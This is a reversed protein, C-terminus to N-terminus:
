RATRFKIRGRKLRRWIQKVEEAHGAFARRKRRKPLTGRSVRVIKTRQKSTIKRRLM